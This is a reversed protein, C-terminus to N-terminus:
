AAELAKRLSRRARSLRHHLAGVSTGLDNAIAATPRDSQLYVTELVARQRKPVRSFARRLDMVAENVAPLIKPEAPVSTLSTMRRRSCNRLHDRLLNHAIRDVWPQICQDNRLRAIHVWAQVWAAQSLETALDTNCGRRRLVAVTKHFGKAYADGFFKERNM